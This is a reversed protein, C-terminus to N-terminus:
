DTEMFREITAALQEPVRGLLTGAYVALWRRVSKESIGSIACYQNLYYEALEQNIFSYAMYSCAADAAPDGCSVQLLDIVTYKSGDSFVNGSHFDCHCLARGAPLGDLIRLLKKKGAAPLRDNRELDDQFRQKLDPAWALKDFKQLRCQLDALINLTEKCKEPDSLGESMIKGRVRDMRLGYRGHALLVEHVRPGPFGVRELNAMIYAESFVSTKPYDTRYLKVAYRGKAFVTAQSGRGVERGFLEEFDIKM